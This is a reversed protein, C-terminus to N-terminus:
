KSKLLILNSINHVHLSKLVCAMLIIIHQELYCIDAFVVTSQIATFATHSNHPITM